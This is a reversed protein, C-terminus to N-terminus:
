EEEDENTNPAENRAGDSNARRDENDNEPTRTSDSNTGSERTRTINSKDSQTM